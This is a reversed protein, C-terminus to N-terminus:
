REYTSKPTVMVELYLQIRQTRSSYTNCELKINRIRYGSKFIAEVVEQNLERDAHLYVTDSDERPRVKIKHEKLVKELFGVNPYEIQTSM